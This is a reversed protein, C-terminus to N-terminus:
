SEDVPCYTSGDELCHLVEDSIEYARGNQDVFLADIWEADFGKVPWKLKVPYVTFPDDAPTATSRVVLSGIPAIASCLDDIDPETRRHVTRHAIEVGVGQAYRRVSSLRPDSGLREFARLDAPEWGIEQAFLEMDPFQDRRAQALEALLEQDAMANALSVSTDAEGFVDDVWGDLSPEARFCDDKGGCRHHCRLGDPCTSVFIDGNM